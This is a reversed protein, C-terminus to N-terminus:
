DLRRLTSSIRESQSGSLAPVAHPTRFHAENVKRMSACLFQSMLNIQAAELRVDKYGLTFETSFASPWKDDESVARTRQLGQLLFLQHHRLILCTHVRGAGGVLPWNSRQLFTQQRSKPARMISQVHHSVHTLLTQCSTARQGFHVFLQHFGEPDPDALTVYCIQEADEQSQHMTDIGFSIGQAPPQKFLAPQQQRKVANVEVVHRGGKIYQPVDDRVLDEERLTQVAPALFVNGTQQSLHLCEPNRHDTYDAVLFVGDQRSNFLDKRVYGMLETLRVIELVQSLQHFSVEGL